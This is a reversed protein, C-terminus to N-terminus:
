SADMGGDQGAEMEETEEKWIAYMKKRNPARTDEHSAVDFIDKLLLQRLEQPTAAGSDSTGGRSNHILYNFEPDSTRGRKPKPQEFNVSSPESPSASASVLTSLLPRFLSAQLRSYTTNSPTRAALNLFPSLM